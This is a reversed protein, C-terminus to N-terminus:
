HFLSSSGEVSRAFLLADFLALSGAGAVAGLVSKGDDDAVSAALCVM